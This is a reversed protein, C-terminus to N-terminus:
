SSRPPRELPSTAVLLPKRTSAPLVGMARRPVILVISALLAICFMSSTGLYCDPCMSGMAMPLGLPLGLLMVLVVLVIM